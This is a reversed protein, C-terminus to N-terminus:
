RKVVAKEATEETVSEQENDQTEELGLSNQSSEETEQIESANESRKRRLTAM